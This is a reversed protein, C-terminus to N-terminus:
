AARNPIHFDLSTALTGDARYVVLRGRTRAALVKGLTEAQQRSTFLRSDDEQASNRVTWFRGRSRVEYVEQSRKRRAPPSAGRAGEIVRLQPRLLPRENPLWKSGLRMEVRM